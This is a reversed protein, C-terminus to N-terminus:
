QIVIKKSITQRGNDIRLIFMGKKELTPLQNVGIGINTTHVSLTQGHISHISVKANQMVQDSELYIVKGNTPNPFVKLSASPIIEENSVFGGFYSDAKAFANKAIEVGMLRGPIDDIPPHIGGWIRSLSSQDSADQYTAWQLTMDESPGQEFVLFENKKIEFEGMGGPFYASGTMLTFLDAAARSFTSHGSVYGAFPPTIFTPRQYPWWNELLIWQVGAIDTEPDTIFDPGGWTKVKIKGVHFNFLGALPDGVKVTEILGDILDIGNPDYSFDTSDTRQGITGLFRLSSIPRIYDYYGKASWASIAADHMTGGLMFYSKVDWELSDLIPGEGKYRREFLPHDAVYHLLTFWHGPPTESDPGDAWFEALVRAYDGRLKIQSEYSQGTVPNIPHGPSNDGGELYNYFDPHESFETPYYTNNGINKPSIDWRVSDAPDLHSSWVSVMSFSWKYLENDQGPNLLRYRPPTGPDHYVKYIDSGVM